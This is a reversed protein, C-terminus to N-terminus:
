ISNDCYNKYPCWDCLKTKNKEFVTDKETKEMMDLMADVYKDLYKRELLLTNELDHEIYVYSLRINDIKPYSYFFYIAYFLLQNFNQHVEDVYKGTKWDILNICDEDLCIYDIHGRFIAEKDGYTTPELKETLAFSHERVSERTMYKQGIESQIFKDAIYQYREAMKHTSPEPYNELISHVAGGKILPTIDRDEQPLKDIYQYKFKRACQDHTSLKSFSYPAYKM